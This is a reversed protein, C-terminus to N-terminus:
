LAKTLLSIDVENKYDYKIETPFSYRRLHTPLNSSDSYIPVRYMECYSLLLEKTAYNLLQSNMLSIIGSILFEPYSFNFAGLNSIVERVLEHM